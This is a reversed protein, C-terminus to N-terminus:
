EITDSEIPIIPPITPQVYTNTARIPNDRNQRDLILRIDGKMSEVGICIDTVDEQVKEMKEEVTKVFEKNDEKYDKKLGFYAYSLITAVLGFIFTLVWFGTKVSMKITSSAGIIKNNILLNRDRTLESQPQLPQDNGNTM